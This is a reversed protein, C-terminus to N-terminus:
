WFSNFNEKETKLFTMQWDVWQRYPNVRFTVM